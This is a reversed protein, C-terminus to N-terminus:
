HNSYIFPVVAPDDTLFVLAALGLLVLVIPTIWWAKYHTLFHWFDTALAKFWV